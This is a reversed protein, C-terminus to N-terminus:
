KILNISNPNVSYRRMDGNLFVDRTVYRDFKIVKGEETVVSLAYGLKLVLKSLQLEGKRILLLKHKIGSGPFIGHNLCVAENLVEVTALIFFSQIHPNFNNRILSQYCKTNYSIGLMGVDQNDDMYQIYKDLFDTQLKNVSSNMLIVYANNRGKMMRYFCEYGSFDMGANSVPIIRNVRDRLMGLEKCLDADSMTLTVDLLHSGKYNEFRQLQYELGCEFEKIGKVKKRRVLPYGGWEHIEVYVCSDAIPKRCTHKILKCKRNKRWEALYLFPFLLFEFILILYFKFKYKNM